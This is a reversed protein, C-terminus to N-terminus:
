HRKRWGAGDFRVLQSIMTDIKAHREQCEHRKDYARAARQAGPCQELQDRNRRVKEPEAPQGGIMGDDGIGRDSQHDDGYGHDATKDDAQHGPEPRVLDAPM